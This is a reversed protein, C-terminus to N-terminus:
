ASSLRYKVSGADSHRLPGDNRCNKMYEGKIGPYHHKYLFFKPISAMTQSATRSDHENKNEPNQSSNLLPSYTFICRAQSRNHAKSTLLLVAVEYLSDLGTQKIKLMMHM